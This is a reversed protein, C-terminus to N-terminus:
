TNLVDPEFNRPITITGHERLQLMTVNVNLMTVNM